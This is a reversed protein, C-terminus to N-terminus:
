EDTKAELECEDCALFDEIGSKMEDIIDHVKDEDGEALAVQLNELANEINEVFYQVDDLTTDISTMIDDAVDSLAPGDFDVAVYKPSKKKALIIV